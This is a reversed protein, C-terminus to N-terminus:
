RVPWTPPARTASSSCQAKRACRAPEAAPEAEGSAAPTHDAMWRQHLEDVFQAPDVNTLVATEPSYKGLFGIFPDEKGLPEVLWERGGKQDALRGKRTARLM